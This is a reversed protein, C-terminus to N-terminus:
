SGSGGAGASGLERYLAQAAQKDDFDAASKQLSELTRRAAAKDGTRAQAVALHYQISAVKPAAKAAKVLIPLAAKAQDGAILAWAYTDQVSPSAPALKYAREALPLAKRDGQETRIWALNNLAGVNSPNDKLLQEYQAAALSNQKHTLYHQALLTRAAQDEPHKALWDTLVKEPKTADTQSLALFTKVVLPRDASAQLGKQYAAAADAPSKDAMYLDGELVFGAAKTAAQAQLTRALALAAPLDNAQMKVTALLIVAQVQNPDAKIVQELNSEAGKPDKNILQVRALNTRYLAAQPALDVTKQLTKLAADANGANMQATGLANLAVPNEPNVAVLREAANVAEDFQGSDSYLLVLAIYPTPSKPAADIAQKAWKIAGAKDGQLLALRSLAMMAAENRSDHKLVADYRGAADKYRGEMLDLNGLSMLTALNNPEIQAAQEYQARAELRKGAAILATGYVLHAASDQPHKTAYAAATRVADDVRKDHVYTSVMLRNRRAEGAADEVPMAELLRLAESDQGAAIAKEAPAFPDNSTANGDAPANAGPAHVGAAAAGQLLALLETDSPTGAVTPRLTNLAQSTRGERFYTLALLRRAEASDQNIGMVNSLYMEAQAYNGQAYNVAGMLMQAQENNPVDKLVLQLQSVADDLHGQKYLVVAHLYRPYPQDPAMKELTQINTLAADFKGQQAQANALRLLTYFHEQPLWDPKNFGLVKQYAAEAEAFQRADFALDGSAIWAQPSEPAAALAQDVYQRAADQNSGTSALKALGVLSRADKPDLALAAKYAEGAQDFQKLGRYADGRLRLVSTKVQRDLPADLSLTKLLEDYQQSLLLAQGLPVAWQAEPVGNARANQLDNLADKPDGLGLSARGLLLWAQGNKSDKQLVKKAEIYAARYKGEAQNKAGAALGDTRGTLGCAALLLSISFVLLGRCALRTNLTNPMKEIETPV